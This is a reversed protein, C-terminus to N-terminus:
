STSTSLSAAFDRQAGFLLNLFPGQCSRPASTCTSRCASLFLFPRVPSGLEATCCPRVSSSTARAYAHPEQATHLTCCACVELSTMGNVGLWENPFTGEDPDASSQESPVVPSQESLVTPDTETLDLYVLKRFMLCLANLVLLSTDATRELSVVM